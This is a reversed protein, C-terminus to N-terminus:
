SERDLVMTTENVMYSFIRERTQKRKAGVGASIDYDGAYGRVVAKGEGDTYTQGSTSHRSMWDGLATYSPKPSLDESLLGGSRILSLRGDVPCWWTIGRVSQQAFLLTYAADVYNAQLREDWSGFPLKFYSPVKGTPPRSPVCLASIQIPKGIRAYRGLMQLMGTFSKARYYVPPSTATYGNELAQLGVVDFPVGASDLAEVFEFPRIRYSAVRSVEAFNVGLEAQPAADRVALAAAHCVRVMDPLSLRLADAQEWFPENVIEFTRIYGGWRRAVQGVHEYMLRPLDAPSTEMFYTPLVGWVPKLWNLAHAGIALGRSHLASPNWVRELYGWNYVGPEPQVHKWGLWLTAENVGVAQLMDYVQADYPYQVGFRFAHRIQEYVVPARELPQGFQDVVRVILEGCRHAEIEDEAGEWAASDRASLKLASGDWKSLM